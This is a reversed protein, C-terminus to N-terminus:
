GGTAVRAKLLSFCYASSVNKLASYSNIYVSITHLLLVLTDQCKPGHIQNKGVILVTNARLYRKARVVFNNEDLPSKLSQTKQGM